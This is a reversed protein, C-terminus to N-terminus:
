QTGPPTLWTLPPCNHHRYHNCHHHHNHHCHHHHHHPPHQDQSTIRLSSSPTQAPPWPQGISSWLNRLKIKQAEELWSRRTARRNQGFDEPFALSSAAAASSPNFSVSSSSSLPPLRSCKTKVRIGPGGRITPDGQVPSLDSTWQLRM